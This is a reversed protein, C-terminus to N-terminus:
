QFNMWEYDISYDNSSHWDKSSFPKFIVGTKFTKSCILLVKVNPHKKQREMLSVRGGILVELQLTLTKATQYYRLLKTARLM